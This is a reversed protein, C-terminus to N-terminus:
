CGCGVFNIVTDDLLTSLDDYLDQALTYNEAEFAYQIKDYLTKATQFDILDLNNQSLQVLKKRIDNDRFAYVTASTQSIGVFTFVFKWIGDTPTTDLAALLTTIDTSLLSTTTMWTGLDISALATGDPPTVVVDSDSISARTSNPSGFGGPNSTVDYEGTGDVLVITDINNQIGIQLDLAM